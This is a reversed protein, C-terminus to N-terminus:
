AIRKTYKSIIRTMDKAVSDGSNRLYHKGTGGTTYKRVTRKNDGGFEQYRAYETNFEVRQHLVGAKRALSDSRLGGKDHPAKTKAKVLIQAAGDRLATELMALNSRKFQPMKDDIIVRSM